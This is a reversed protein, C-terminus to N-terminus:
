KSKKPQPKRREYSRVTITGKPAKQAPENPQRMDIVRTVPATQVDRAGIIKTENRLKATQKAKRIESVLM